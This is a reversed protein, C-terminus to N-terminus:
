TIKVFYSPAIAIVSGVGLGMGSRLEGVRLREGQHSPLAVSSDRMSFRRSDGRGQLTPAPPPTLLVLYMM